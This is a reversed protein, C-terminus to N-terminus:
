SNGYELVKNPYSNGGIQFDTEGVVSFGNRLYFALAHCNEANVSLWPKLIANSLCYNLAATLLASGTGTGQHRTQVYLTTIELRSSTKVPPTEGETIRVFGDIGERNDSVWIKQNGDHLISQINSTTFETMAYDAFAASVGNRIYTALWVEISIAAIGSADNLTASRIKM